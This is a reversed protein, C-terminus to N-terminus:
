HSVHLDAIQFTGISKRGQEGIGLPTSQHFSAFGVLERKEGGGLAGFSNRRAINGSTESLHHPFTPETVGCLFIFVTRSFPKRCKTVQVLLM